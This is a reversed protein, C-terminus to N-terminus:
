SDLPTILEIGRDGCLSRLNAFAARLHTVRKDTPLIPSTSTIALTRLRAMGDLEDTAFVNAASAAGFPECCM